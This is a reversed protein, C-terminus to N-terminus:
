YKFLLVLSGIIIIQVGLGLSMKYVAIDLPVNMAMVGFTIQTFAM